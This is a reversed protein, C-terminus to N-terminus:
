VRLGLVSTYMCTCVCDCVCFVCVEAVVVVVFISSDLALYGTHLVQNKSSGSNCGM